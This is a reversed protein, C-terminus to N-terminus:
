KRSFLKANFQQIDIYHIVTPIVTPLLRDKYWFRNTIGERRMANEYFWYELTIFYDSIYNLSQTKKREEKERSKASGFNAEGIAFTVTGTPLSAKKVHVTSSRPENLTLILYRYNLKSRIVQLPQPVCKGFEKVFVENNLSFFWRFFIVEFINLYLEVSNKWM